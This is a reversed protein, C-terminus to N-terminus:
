AVPPGRESWTPTFPLVPADSPAVPPIVSVFGLAPVDLGIAPPLDLTAVFHCVACQPDFPKNSKSDQPTTGKAPACCSKGSTAACSGGLKIVGRPHLPVVVGFWLTITVLLLIRFCRGRV